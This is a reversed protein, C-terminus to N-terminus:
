IRFEKELKKVYSIIASSYDSMIPLSDIIANKSSIMDNLKDNFKNTTEKLQEFILSQKETLNNKNSM